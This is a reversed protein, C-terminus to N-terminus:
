NNTPIKIYFVNGKPKNPKVGVEANHADGIRKVIALGLGRGATIGEGLQVKREFIRERDDIAITKGFDSFGIIISNDSPKSEIIIKKGDKAYKIANSVFNEFIESIIPNAHIFIPDEVKLVVEMDANKLPSSFSSVVKQIIKSVNIKEKSIKEGSSLSILTSINDIIKMLSHSSDSILQAMENQSNEELLLESIGSIVNIPNKLDHVLIDLLLEKLNNAGALKETLLKLDEGRQILARNQNITEEYTYVLLDLIQRRKVDITYNMGKYVISIGSTYPESPQIEVNNLLYKIRSLLHEESFPKTVYSDARVVLSQLIDEADLLHTLLIVPIKRLNKHEKIKRCMEYGNMKPMSIDTVILNPHLSKAKELGEVGDRATSVNYGNKEIIHKLNVIQTASDEVILICIGSKPKSKGIKDINNEIMETMDYFLAM